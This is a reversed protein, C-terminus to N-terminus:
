WLYPSTLVRNVMPGPHNPSRRSRTSCVRAALQEVAPKGEPVHHFAQKGCTYITM